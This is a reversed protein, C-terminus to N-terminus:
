VMTASNLVGREFGLYWGAFVVELILQGTAAPNANFAVIIVKPTTGTYYGKAYGNASIAMSNAYANLVTPNLDPAAADLFGDVDGGEIGVEMTAVTDFVAAIHGRVGLVVVGAPVDIRYDDGADLDDYDIVYRVAFDSLARGALEPITARYQTQVPM